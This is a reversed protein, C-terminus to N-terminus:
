NEKSGKWNRPIYLTSPCWLLTCGLQLAPAGLCVLMGTDGCLSPMGLVEQHFAAWM